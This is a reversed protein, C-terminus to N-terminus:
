PYYKGCYLKGNIVIVLLNLNLKLTLHGLKLSVLSVKLELKLSIKIQQTRFPYRPLQLKSKWYKNSEEFLSLEYPDMRLYVPDGYEKLLIRQM